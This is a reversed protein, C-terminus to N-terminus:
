DICLGPQAVGKLVEAWCGFPQNSSQCQGTVQKGPEGVGTLCRRECESSDTCSKGADGTPITCAMFGGLGVKGWTGGQQKCSAEDKPTVNTSNDVVKIDIKKNDVPDPKSGNCAVLASSLVILTVLAMLQAKM